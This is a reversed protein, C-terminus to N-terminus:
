APMALCGCTFYADGTSTRCMRTNLGVWFEFPWTAPTSGTNLCIRKRGSAAPRQSLSRSSSCRRLTVTIPQSIFFFRNGSSGFGMPFYTSIPPSRKSTIPKIEFKVLSSPFEDFTRHKMGYEVIATYKGTFSAVSTCFAM